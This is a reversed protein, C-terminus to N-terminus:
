EGNSIPIDGRYEFPIKLASNVINMSGLLRYDL